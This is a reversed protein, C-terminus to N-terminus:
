RLRGIPLNKPYELRRKRADDFLRLPAVALFRCLVLPLRSPNRPALRAAALAISMVAVIAVAMAMSSPGIVLPFSAFVAFGMGMAAARLNYRTRASFLIGASVVVAFLFLNIGFSQRFLLIDALLVLAALVAVRRNAPNASREETLTGIEQLTKRRRSAGM